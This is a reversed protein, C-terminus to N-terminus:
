GHRFSGATQKIFIKIREGKTLDMPDSSRRDMRDMLFAYRIAGIFRPVIFFALMLLVFTGVYGLLGSGSSILDGVSFPLSVGSFDIMNVGEGM